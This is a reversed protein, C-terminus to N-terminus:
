ILLHFIEKTCHSLHNEFVSKLLIRYIGCNNEFTPVAYFIDENKEPTQASKDCEIWVMQKNPASHSVSHPIYSSFKCRVAASTFFFENKTSHTNALESDPILTGLLVICCLVCLYKVIKNKIM